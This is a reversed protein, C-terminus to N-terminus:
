QVSTASDERPGVCLNVRNRGEAKASYLAGDAAAILEDTTRGHFPFTSDVSTTYSSAANNLTADHHSAAVAHDKLLGSL